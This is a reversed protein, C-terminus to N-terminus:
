VEHFKRCCHVISCGFVPLSQLVSTGNQDKAENLGLKYVHALLHKPIQENQMFVRKSPVTKERYLTTEDFNLVHM